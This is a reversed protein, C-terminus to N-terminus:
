KRIPHLPHFINCIGRLRPQVPHKTIVTRSEAAIAQGARCEKDGCGIDIAQGAMKLEAVALHSFFIDFVPIGKFDPLITGTDEEGVAPQAFPTRDM